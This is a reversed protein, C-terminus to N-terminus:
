VDPDRDIPGGSTDDPVTRITCEPADSNEISSVLFLTVRAPSVGGQGGGLNVGTGNVFMFKVCVSM